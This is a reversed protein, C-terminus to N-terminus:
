IKTQDANKDVIEEFNSCLCKNGFLSLKEGGEASVPAHANYHRPM